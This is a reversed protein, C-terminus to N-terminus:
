RLLLETFCARHVQYRRAGVSVGGASCARAGAAGPASCGGPESTARPARGADAEAGGWGSARQLSLRLLDVGGAARCCGGGGVGGGIPVGRARQAAAAGRRFCASLMPVVLIGTFKTVLALGALLGTLALKAWDSRWNWTPSKCYSYWAFITGLLSLSSGIDTTVLAGNALVNPDFVFLTLAILGAVPGFLRWASSGAAAGAGAYSGAPWGHLCCSAIRIDRTSSCLNAAM